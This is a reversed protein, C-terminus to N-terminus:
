SLGPKDIPIFLVQIDLQTRPFHNTRNDFIVKYGCSLAEISCYYRFELHRSDAVNTMCKGDVRLLDQRLRSFGALLPNESVTTRNGRLGWRSALDNNDSYNAEAAGGLIAAVSSTSWRAQKRMSAVLSVTENLVLSVDPISTISTSKVTLM